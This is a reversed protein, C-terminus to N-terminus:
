SWCAENVALALIDPNTLDFFIPNFGYRIVTEVWKPLLLVVIAIFIV